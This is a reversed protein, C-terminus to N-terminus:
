DQEDIIRGKNGSRGRNLPKQADLRRSVRRDGTQRRDIISTGRASKQLLRRDNRTRRRNGMRRREVRPPQNQDAIAKTRATEEVSEPTKTANNETASRNITGIPILDVM